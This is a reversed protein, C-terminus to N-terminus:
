GSFPDIKGGSIVAGANSHRSGALDTARHRMSTENASPDGAIRWVDFPSGGRMPLISGSQIASVLSGGFSVGCCAAACVQVGSRPLM